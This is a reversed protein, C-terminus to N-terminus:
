DELTTSTEFATTFQISDGLGSKPLGIAMATQLPCQAEGVMPKEPSKEVTDM